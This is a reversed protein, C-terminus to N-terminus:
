KETTVQVGKFRVETARSPEGGDPAVIFFAVLRARDSSRRFGRFRVTFQHRLGAPVTEKVFGVGASDSLSCGVAPYAVGDSDILKAAAADAEPTRLMLGIARASASNNAVFGHCVVDPAVVRAM